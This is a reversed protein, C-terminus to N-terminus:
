AFPVFTPPPSPGTVVQKPIIFNPSDQVPTVTITTPIAGGSAATTTTTTPPPTTNTPATPTTSSPTPPPPALPPAPPPPTSSGGGGSPASQPNANNPATKDPSTPATVQPPPANFKAIFTELVVAAAPPSSAPAAAPALQNNATITYSQGSQDVTGIVVPIPNAATPKSYLIYSGTHGDPEALVQFNVAPTNGSAPVTFDIEVLVATGRIGLTATPTEGKTDGHKATEGAVFSITGAVLTLLSSNSSGNPDYVMENLVMRANSSLGFVTGDTFTVCVTSESGSQVVDGK